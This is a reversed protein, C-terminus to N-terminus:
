YGSRPPYLGGAAYGPRRPTCGIPYPLHGGGASAGDCAAAPRQPVHTCTGRSGRRGGLNRGGEDAEKDAAGGTEQQGLGHAGEGGEYEAAGEVHGAGARQQGGEDGHRHDAGHEAGDDGDAAGPLVAARVVSTPSGTSWCAVRGRGGIGGGVPRTDEFMQGEPGLAVAPGSQEQPDEGDRDDGDAGPARAAGVAVVEGQGAGVGVGGGQQLLVSGRLRAAADLDDELVGVPQATNARGDDPGEVPYAARGADGVDAAGVRVGGGDGLVAGDAIGGDDQVGLGLVDGFLVDRPDDVGGLRGGLVAQRHLETPVRHAAGLLLAAPAGFARAHEGGQDDEHQEETRHHRGRQRQDGREETPPAILRIM